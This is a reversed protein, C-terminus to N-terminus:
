TPTFAGPLGVLIVKKGKCYDGLMFKEPPFGDDLGINPIADGVKVKLNDNAYPGKAAEITAEDLEFARCAVVPRPAARARQTSRRGVAAATTALTAVASGAAFAAGFSSSQGSPQMSVQQARHAEVAQRGPMVSFNNSGMRTTVLAGVAGTLVMGTAMKKDRKTMPQVPTCSCLPLGEAFIAQAL